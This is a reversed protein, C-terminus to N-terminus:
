VFGDKPLHFTISVKLFFNITYYPILLVVKVTIQYSNITLWSKSRELLYIVNQWLSKKHKLSGCSDAYITTSDM